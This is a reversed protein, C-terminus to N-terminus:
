GTIARLDLAVSELMDRFTAEDLNKILHSPDFVSYGNPWNINEIQKRIESEIGSKTLPFNGPGDPQEIEDELVILFQIMKFRANWDPYAFVRIDQISRYIRGADSSRNHKEMVRKRIGKFAKALEDPFAFRGFSRELSQVFKRHFDPDASQSRRLPALVSKTITFLGGLNAVIGNKFLDPIICYNPKAGRRTDSLTAADLLRLPAVVIEEDAEHAWDYRAVVDCTQSAVIFGPAELIAVNLSESGESPPVAIIRASPELCWNGQAWNNIADLQRSNDAENGSKAGEEDM